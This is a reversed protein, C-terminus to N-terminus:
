RNSSCFHAEVSYHHLAVGGARWACRVRLGDYIILSIALIVVSANQIRDKQTEDSHKATSPATRRGVMTQGLM